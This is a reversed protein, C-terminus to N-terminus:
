MRGGSTNKGPPNHQPTKLSSVGFYMPLEAYECDFAYEAYETPDVAIAITKVEGSNAEM